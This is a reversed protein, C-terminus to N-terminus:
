RLRLAPTQRDPQERIVFSVPKCQSSALCPSQDTQDTCATKAVVPRKLFAENTVKLFETPFGLLSTLPLLHVHHLETLRPPFDHVWHLSFLVPRFKDSSTSIVFGARNHTKSVNRCWPHSRLVFTYMALKCSWLTVRAHPAQQQLNFAVVINM